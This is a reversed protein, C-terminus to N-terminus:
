RIPRSRTAGQWSRSRARPACANGATEPSRARDDGRAGRDAPSRGDCRRAMVAVLDAAADAAARDIGAEAVRTCGAEVPHAAAQPEPSADSGSAAPDTPNPDAM